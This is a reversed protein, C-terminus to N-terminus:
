RLSQKLFELTREWALSAAAPDYEPRDEEMFWHATGSYIHLTVDVGAAKMNQEMDQARDFPCWEDTEAYHGLVKSKMRSFDVIWGGYFLVTAAVEPEKAAIMIAWDTGMSFGIIGVSEGPRLSALHDKAAKIMAGMLDLDSEAEQQLAKAEDITHAIRGQYYDLGLATYGQEALQDCVQKFFPKLGWWSPLVLIGPGSNSPSALYANLPKRNVELKIESKQISM